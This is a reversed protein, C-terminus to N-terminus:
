IKDADPISIIRNDPYERAKPTEGRYEVHRKM